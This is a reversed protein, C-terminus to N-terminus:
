QCQCWIATPIKVNYYILLFSWLSFAESRERIRILKITMKSRCEFIRINKEYLYTTNHNLQFDTMRYFAYAIISLWTHLDFKFKLSVYIQMQNPQGFHISNQTRIRNLWISIQNSHMDTNYSHSPYTIVHHCRHQYVGPYCMSFM